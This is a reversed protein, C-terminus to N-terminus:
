AAIFCQIVAKGIRGGRLSPLVQQLGALMAEILGRSSLQRGVKQEQSDSDDEGEGSKKEAEPATLGSWHASDHVLSSRRCAERCPM